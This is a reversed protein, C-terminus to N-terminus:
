TTGGLRDTYLRIPRIEVGMRFNHNGRVWSLTDIFSISYNTYPLARGNFASSSRILGGATAIGASGGQGGIGPLAVSGALNVSISNMDIGALPPADGNSRTKYSNVGLKSENILSPTLIQQFSVLANQPIAAFRQSNGTVGLPDFSYGQDRFYRTYLSYRPTLRYDLRISGYNEDVTASRNLQALDLDPDATPSSGVPYAALLPRIAPIARTRAAASPVTEILNVGARQRLGEYAAFFFARDKRVPGGLSAGFQNMRLPSLRESDFFNRADMANNRLYEFVAGHFENSGSKTVVTIQGGSGTGYEAPYNNSEVRFEQVNELSSQLRFSSSSAGNLNGPSADVIASGEVGDYRIVNQQNARGSFRINDYSGGGSSVAGPTLLYLQSLQRGNLPLNGVERAGVNVGIRASGTDVVVMEGGSVNIETGMVEPYMVMNITREQGAALQVDNYVPAALGPASVSLRYTSPALNRAAYYGNADSEVHREEGTRENKVVIRAAPIVLGTTDTVTGKLRAQEVQAQTSAAFLALAVFCKCSIRNIM